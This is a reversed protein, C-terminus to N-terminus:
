AAVRKMREIEAKLRRVEAMADGLRDGPRALAIRMRATALQQELYEVPSM